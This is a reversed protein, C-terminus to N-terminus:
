TQEQRVMAGRQGAIAASLRGSIGTALRPPATTTLGADDSVPSTAVLDDTWSLLFQLYRWLEAAVQSAQAVDMGDGAQADLARLTHRHKEVFADVALNRDAIIANFAEQNVILNLFILTPELHLPNRKSNITSM